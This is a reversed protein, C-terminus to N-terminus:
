TRAFRVKVWKGPYHGGKNFPEPYLSDSCKTDSCVTIHDVGLRSGSLRSVVRYAQYPMGVEKLRAILALAYDDCDGSFAERGTHWVLPDEGYQNVATFLRDVDRAIGNFSQPAGPPPATSACAMTAVTLASLTVNRLRM